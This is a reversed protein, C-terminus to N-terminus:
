IFVIDGDANRTDCRSCADGKSSTGVFIGIIRIPTHTPWITDEAGGTIKELTKIEKIKFDELKLM